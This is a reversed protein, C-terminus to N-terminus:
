AFVHTTRGAGLPVEAERHATATELSIRVRDLTPVEELSLEVCGDAGPSGEFCVFGELDSVTVWATEAAAGRLGSAIVLSRARVRPLMPRVESPPGSELLDSPDDLSAVIALSDLSRARDPMEQAFSSVV